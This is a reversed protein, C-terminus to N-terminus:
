RKWTSMKFEINFIQEWKALSYGKPYQIICVKNNETNKIIQIDNNKCIEYFEKNLYQQLCYRTPFPKTCNFSRVFEDYTGSSRLPSSFETYFRLEKNVWSVSLKYCNNCEEFILSNQEYISSYNNSNIYYDLDHYHEIRTIPQLIEISDIYPLQFPSSDLAVRRCRYSKIRMFAVEVLQLLINYDYFRHAVGNEIHQFIKFQDDKPIHSLVFQRINDIEIPDIPPIKDALLVHTTCPNFVVDNVVADCIIEYFDDKWKITILLKRDTRPIIAIIKKICPSSNQDGFDSCPGLGSVHVTYNEYFLNTYDLGVYPFSIKDCEICCRPWKRDESIYLLLKDVAYSNYLSM